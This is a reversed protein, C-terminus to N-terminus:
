RAQRSIERNLQNQQHNIDRQEGRSLGRGDHAQDRADHAIERNEQKLDRAEGRSLNGSRYEQNIRDNTDQVRDRVQDKRHEQVGPNQALAGGAVLVTAAFVVSATKFIPSSMKKETEQPKPPNRM